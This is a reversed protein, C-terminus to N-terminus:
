RHSDPNEEKRCILLLCLLLSSTSSSKRHASKRLSFRTNPNRGIPFLTLYRILEISLEYLHMESNTYKRRKDLLSEFQLCITGVPFLTSLSYLLSYQLHICVIKCCLQHFFFHSLPLPSPLAPQFHGPPSFPTLCVLPWSAPPLLTWGLYLLRM